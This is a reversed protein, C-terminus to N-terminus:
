ARPRKQPRGGDDATGRKRTQYAAGGAHEANAAYPRSRKEKQGIKRQKREIAKRVAGRGGQAALAEYRAKVLMEKKEATTAMDASGTRGFTVFCCQCNRMHWAGKGQKRREDEERKVRELAEREVRERKDKAVASLRV